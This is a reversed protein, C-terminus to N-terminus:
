NDVEFSALIQVSNLCFQGLIHCVADSCEGKDKKDTYASVEWTTRANWLLRQSLLFTPLFCIVGGMGRVQGSVTSLCHVIVIGPPIDKPCDNPTSLIIIQPIYYIHLVQSFIIQECIILQHLM